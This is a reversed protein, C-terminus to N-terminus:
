EIIVFIDNFPIVAFTEGNHYFTETQDKMCVRAGVAVQGSVAVAVAVVTAERLTSRDRDAAKNLQVVVRDNTPRLNSM